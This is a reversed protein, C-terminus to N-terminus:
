LKEGGADDAQSVKLNGGGAGAMSGIGEALDDRGWSLLFFVPVVVLFSFVFAYQANTASIGPLYLSFPWLSPTKLFLLPQELMNWCEIVGLLAASKVAQGALPLGIHWFLLFENKSEMSFAEILEEPIGTFSRYILLVPFTSFVAPLIIGAHTDLLSLRELIRYSSLMTVQFPLLMLITYLYFLLSSLKGNWRFFGWAAPAAVFLQGATICATLKVSNWFVVYFEPTDMLVEVYGRLTPYAPLFILYTRGTEALLGGLADSLERRGALSGALLVLVPFCSLACVLAMLCFATARAVSRKM